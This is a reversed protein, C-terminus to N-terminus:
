VFFIKRKDIFPKIWLCEEKCNKKKEKGGSCFLPVTKKLVKWGQEELPKYIENEYGSLVVPSNLNLLKEILEKHDKDSFEFDYNGSTRISHVYPPDLYFLNQGGNGINWEKLIHQWDRNEILVNQFRKHMKFLGPICNLWADKAKSARSWGKTDSIGSFRNRIVIFWKAVREIKDPEEKYNQSEEYLQRSYPLVSVRRYFQQFLDEKSIVEFFEYLSSDIDNYVEQPSPKKAILLGAGGGFVEIYTKHPISELIPLIWNNLDLRGKGGFWRVPSHLRNM